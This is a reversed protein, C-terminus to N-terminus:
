WGISYVGIVVLAGGLFWALSSVWYDSRSMALDVGDGRRDELRLVAGCSCCRLGRVSLGGRETLRWGAM